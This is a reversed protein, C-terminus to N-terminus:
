PQEQVLGAAGAALLRDALQHGAETATAVPASMSERILRRGDSSVVVATLMLTDGGEAVQALAGVPASCGAALGILVAREADVAHRSSSDDIRALLTITAADEARCEVALAGQAPAPCMDRVPFTEDIREDLGLRTLGAAALVVADLNGSDVAALRSDVNGRIDVVNLDPRLRLLQAARRASGTGVRAGPPLQALTRGRAVLVDRPDARTPVAALVLRQDEATPLDKASHIVADVEGALLRERLGGVFVGLGGIRRLSASSTDGRTTVGVLTVGVSGLMGAVLQSQALALASRRTGLRLQQTAVGRM